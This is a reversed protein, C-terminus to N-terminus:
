RVTLETRKGAIVTAELRQEPNNAYQVLFSWKGPAVILPEGLPIRWATESGALRLAIENAIASTVGQAASRFVVEGFTFALGIPQDATLRLGDVVYPVLAQAAVRYTGAPVGIVQGTQFTFTIGQSSTLTLPLALPAGDARYAAARVVAWDLRTLSGDASLRLGQREDLTQVDAGSPLLRARGETIGFLLDGNPLGYALFASAEGIEVSGGAAKLTFRYAASKPQVLGNLQGEFLAVAVQWGNLLSNHHRKLAFRAGSMLDLQAHVLRLEAATSLTREAGDPMVREQRDAYALVAAPPQMEAAIVSGLGVGALAFLTLLSIPAVSHSM